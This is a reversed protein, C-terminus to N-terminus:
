KWCAMTWEADPGMYEPDSYSDHSDHSSVRPSYESGVEDAVDPAQYEANKWTVVNYGDLAHESQAQPSASAVEILWTTLNDM